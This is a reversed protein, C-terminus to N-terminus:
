APYAGRHHYAGGLSHGTVFVPQAKNPKLADLITRWVTDVADDFGRHIDHARTGLNFNTIWNAFAIPDTGAFAVITAGRGTAVLGRTSSSPRISTRGNGILAAPELTWRHLVPEIKHHAHRVEYAVAVDM